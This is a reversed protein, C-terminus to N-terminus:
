RGRRGSALAMTRKAATEMDERAKTWLEQSVNAPRRLDAFFEPIYSALRHAALAATQREREAGAALNQGSVTALYLLNLTQARGIDTDEFLGRPDQEVLPAAHAVV